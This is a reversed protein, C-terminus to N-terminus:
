ELVILQLIQEEGEAPLDDQTISFNKQIEGVNVALRKTIQEFSEKTKCIPIFYGPSLDDVLEFINGLGDTEKFILINNIGIQELEKKSIAKTKSDVIILNIGENDISLVEIEKSNVAPIAQVMVNKDEYEGPSSIIFAKDDEIVEKTLNIIIDLGDDINKGEFAVFTKIGETTILINEKKKQIKM